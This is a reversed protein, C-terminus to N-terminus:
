TRYISKIGLLVQYIDLQSRIVNAQEQYQCDENTNLFTTRSPKVNANSMMLHSDFATVKFALIFGFCSIGQLM